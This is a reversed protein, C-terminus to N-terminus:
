KNKQIEQIRKLNRNDIATRRLDIVLALVMVVAYNQIYSFVAEWYAGIPLPTFQMLIITALMVLGCSTIFHLVLAVVSGYKNEEIRESVLDHNLIMLPIIPAACIIAVSMALEFLSLYQVAEAPSRIMNLFMSITFFVCFLMLPKAEFVSLFSLKKNM